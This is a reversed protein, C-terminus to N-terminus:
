QAVMRLYHHGFIFMEGEQRFGISEYLTKARFNEPECALVATLGTKRAVGIGHLLLSRAIGCGRARPLVAISDLYYEGAKTEADMSEVDFTILESLLSFTRERMEKYGEGPYAVLAALPQGSEDEAIICNRWCYLTGDQTISDALLALRRNDHECIGDENRLMIDDGLAEVVVLAIFHADDITAKRITM